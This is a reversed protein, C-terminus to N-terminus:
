VTERGVPHWYPPRTRRGPSHGRDQWGDANDSPHIEWESVHGYGITAHKGIGNIRTLLVTLEDVSTTVACWALEHVWAAELLTDRAKHPGLGLHHKRFNGYRAMADVAPKRRVQVGTYGAVTYTAQSAKWGWTDDNEWTDLPLPVRPETDRRLPPLDGALARSYALLSDLMIPARTAEVIPSDVKAKVVVPTIM